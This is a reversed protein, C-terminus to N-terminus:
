STHVVVENKTNYNSKNEKVAMRPFPVALETDTRMIVDDSTM